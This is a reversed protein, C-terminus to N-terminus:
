KKQYVSSAVCSLGYDAPKQIGEAHGVLLCGGPILRKVLKRIIAVKSQEDFYIMVNRLFIFHFLGIEPLPTSLNLREFSIKDQLQPTAKIMGTKGKVGELWYEHLLDKKINDYEGEIYVGRKAKALVESNIDTALIEFNWINESLLSMAISYPEQGMSCAASWIRLNSKNPSQKLTNVLYDFHKHERFFYTENTTLCDILAQIENKNKENNLLSIYQSFSELGLIRMRKSIRVNVLTVKENSLGIGSYKEFLDRLIKFQTLSLTDM